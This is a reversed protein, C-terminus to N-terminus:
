GLYVVTSTTRHIHPIHCVLNLTQLMLQEQVGVPDVTIPVPWRVEHCLLTTSNVWRAIKFALPQNACNQEGHSMEM